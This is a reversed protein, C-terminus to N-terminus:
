DRFSPASSMDLGAGATAVRPPPAFVPPLEYARAKAQQPHAEQVMKKLVPLLAVWIIAVDDYAMSLGAGGIYYVLLGLQIATALDRAWALEPRRYSLKRIKQTQQFAIFLIALYLGLGMFGHEGLVQFYISHAAHTGVGPVYHSFIAAKEPGAFGAGFPFHDTAYYFAVKWAQIRGQFSQDGDLNNMTNIRDYFSQPMFNLAPVVVMAMLIPSLFKNRSRCWGLVCLAVLGLYAGRSYSGLVSLFTLVGVAALGARILYNSSQKYLYVILPVIMLLALALQNNDGILTGVPGAIRNAGGSMITLIGGKAGYYGLAIVIVWTLAHARVKSNVAAGVFLGLALMRWTRDWLDWSSIPEPAFFCNFTMWAFFLLTAVVLSDKEPFKREKSFGWALGTVVVVTLNFRLTDALVGYVERHPQMIAIWTWALIGAFPYRLTLGLCTLVISSLVIDRLM